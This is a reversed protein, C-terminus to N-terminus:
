DEIKFLPVGLDRLAVPWAAYWTRMADALTRLGRGVVGVVEDIDVLEYFHASGSLRMVGPSPRTWLSRTPVGGSPLGQPRWRHYDGHRRQEVARWDSDATLDVLVECLEVVSSMRTTRAAEITEEALKGTLPPWADRRDSFPQFGAAKPRHRRLVADADPSLTLTRVTLNALGHAASLLFYGCMEALARCAMAFGPEARGAVLWRQLEQDMTWALGLQEGCSACRGVLESIRGEPAGRTYGHLELFQARAGLQQWELAVQQVPLRDDPVAPLATGRPTWTLRGLVQAVVDADDAGNEGGTVTYV